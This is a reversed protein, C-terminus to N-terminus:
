IPLFQDFRPFLLNIRDFYDFCYEIYPRQSYNISLILPNNYFKLLIKSYIKSKQFQKVYFVINTYRYFSHRRVPKARAVTFVESKVFNLTTSWTGSPEGQRLPTHHLYIFEM